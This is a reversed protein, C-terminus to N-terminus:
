ESDQTNRRYVELLGRITVDPDFIDIKPTADHFLAAVGGTAVVTMPRGYEAKIRDILGEILAVYGWYVGAQM